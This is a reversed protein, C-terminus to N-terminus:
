LNDSLSQSDLLAESITSVFDTLAKWVIMRVIYEPVGNPEDTYIFDRDQCYQEVVQSVAAERGTYLCTLEPFAALLRIAKERDKLAVIDSETPDLTVPNTSKPLNYNM